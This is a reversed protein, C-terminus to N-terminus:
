KKNKIFKLTKIYDEKKDISKIINLDSPAILNPNLVKLIKQLSNNGKLHNQLITDYDLYSYIALLPEYINEHANYICSTKENKLYADKLQQLTDLNLFPYDCGIFLLDKELEREWVSLLSVIPGCDNYRSDDIIFNYSSTISNSQNKNCSIYVTSCIKALLNYVHYQQEISYYILKGKDTQMRSSKGGCAVIGILDNM